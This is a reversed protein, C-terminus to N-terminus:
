ARVEFAKHALRALVPNKPTTIAGDICELRGWRNLTHLRNGPWDAGPSILKMGTQAFHDADLADIRALVLKKGYGKSCDQVPRWLAGNMKTVAGAPRAMRSDVLVPRQSHPEWPGMMSSAHHIALTDSYGGIGDRIVSTMWWRDNHEFLTADAAEVGTLLQNERVWKGPFEVCRYISVAGSTSAEPIMYLEGDRAILFPYSLHWPETLAHVPEGVLGNPGVQQAFISGKATRYDMREFFIYSQGRWEVPFPDAAFDAGNLSLINWPKGALGGTELVGPGDNFRWGIRWKPSHCVLHYIRRTAKRVLNRLFFATTAGAGPRARPAAPVYELPRSPSILTREILTIVRSFLAELGGRLGDANELSPLGQAFTARKAVDEISIVPAESALLAGIAALESPDGDYLPRLVRAAKAFPARAVANSLDIVVDPSAANDLWEFRADMVVSDGISAGDNRLLLRELELLWAVAGPYSADGDVARFGVEADPLLTRVREKLRLHWSRLNSRAVIIEIRM